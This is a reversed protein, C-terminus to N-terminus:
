PHQGGAAPGQGVAMDWQRQGAARRLRPCAQRAGGGRGSAMPAQPRRRTAASRWVSKGKVYRGFQDRGTGAPTHKSLSTLKGDIIDKRLHGLVRSLRDHLEDERYTRLLKETREPHAAFFAAREDGTIVAPLSLTGDWNPDSAGGWYKMIDPLWEAKWQVRQPKKLPEGAAARHM